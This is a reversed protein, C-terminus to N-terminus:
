DWLNIMPANINAESLDPMTIRVGEPLVFPLKALKPNAELIEPVASERGYFSKCVQDLVDGARTRYETAM